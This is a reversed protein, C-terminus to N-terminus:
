SLPIVAYRTNKGEGSKKVKFTLLKPNEELIAKLNGIVIPPVKYREEDIEIYYYPYEADNEKKLELLTSVSKLDAINLLRKSEFENAAEKLTPM